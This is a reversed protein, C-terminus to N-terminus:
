TNRKIPSLQQELATIIDHNAELIPLRRIQELAYWGVRQGEKGSVEGQYSDVLFFYLEVQGDSYDWRQQTFLRCQEIIIGTEEDMERTLAEVFSEGSEVKGGPFEWYHPHKQHSQRQCLLYRGQDDSILAAVVQLAKETM